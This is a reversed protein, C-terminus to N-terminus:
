QCNAHQRETTDHLILMIDRSVFAVEWVLARWCLKGPTRTCWARVRQCAPPSLADTRSTQIPHPSNCGVAQCMLATFPDSSARAAISKLTREEPVASGTNTPVHMCLRPKRLGQLPLM